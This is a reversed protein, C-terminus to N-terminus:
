QPTSEPRPMAEVLAAVSASRDHEVLTWLQNACTEGVLGRAKAHLDQRSARAGPSGRYAKTSAEHVTGDTFTVRVEATWDAPFAAEVAPSTVCRVRRMLPLLEGTLEAARDFQDVTATGTTLALAAGFPMNFQADVASEVRLKAEAPVSVLRAGAEIVAVEVDDIDAPTLDPRQAAVDLLLDINGHMYRCCPYLKISTRWAYDGPTIPRVRDAHFGEGYNALFGDRGELAAAPAVFGVAALRTARIGVAAAHGANLRKTWAGDSLFELSGAALNAALGIADVTQSEDFELLRSLAAAAGIAGAVGTPHFGRGYSEAAGLVVGVDCMVDYGVVAADLLAGYSAGREEAVAFLAPFLVVAPHLSAEEFTDDLELGHATIGNVLAADEASLRLISGLVSSPSSQSAHGGCAARAARASERNFGGLTVALSDFLLARMWASREEDLDVPRLAHQAYDRALSM